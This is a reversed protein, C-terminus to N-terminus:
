ASKGGRGMTSIVVLAVAYAGAGLWLVVSFGWSLAAMTALVGSIVSASGNIAWVWPILGPARSEILASGKAFPIGMLLGLPALSLLTLIVRLATSWGLAVAFMGQLVLPTLLAVVVLVALAINLRWRPASLSGIGSFLLLAFLVTSLATVPQGLFLIFHQALPIEVFLFALGLAFFYALVRVIIGRAQRITSNQKGRKLILPGFILITALLVLMGLLLVLILYGSGGFPQWTKRLGAIIEPTQRWRFYHFFFPRDDTTPRIDYEYSQIFREPDSMLDAFTTHYIPEPLHNRLNVENPSIDSLWVLDYGRSAVFARISTREIDNLPQKSVVFTMTRLSRFAAIHEGPQNIGRDRLAMEITALTRLTETPPNQLWRTLILVGDPLLCDMYDGLAEVTYRYDESLSYAGSTVPHFSDSLAIVIVKFFPDDRQAYARNESAIVQVRPDNYLGHTFDAYPGRLVDIVLPDREVVTLSPVGKSLAMLAAWGGGPELVLYESAELRLDYSIAEPINTALVRALEDDPALATLPKLNDGDLTLGAQRPPRAILANQSLGPLLHITESEVVDVRALLGWKSFTHRADAALMVQALGKYPSIQLAIWSPRLMALSLLLPVGLMVCISRAAAQVRRAPAKFLLITALGMAASAFLAGEGGIWRLLPLVAVCGLASGVLNAAYVRHLDHTYTTLMGGIILGSFLFPATAGLLTLLLYLTQHADWAIAYSDFPALNLIAYCALAALAFGAAWWGPHQGLRPWVSLMSGAMGSGLLALSIVLFAFHYFQAVAFLRTLALEFTLMATSLLGIALLTAFPTSAHAVQRPHVCRSPGADLPDSGEAPWPTQM